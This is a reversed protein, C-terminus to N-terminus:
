ARVLIWVTLPEGGWGVEHFSRVMYDRGAITVRGSRPLRASRVASPTGRSARLHGRAGRAVVDAGTLDHVVKVYGTVDQISVLLIGLVRGRSRLVRRGPAVVFVGDSNVTANVLVRSGRVVSIRTVHDFHNSPGMLQADAEGQAGAVNGSSLADLLVRDRAIRGLQQVLKRGGAESAYSAQAIHVIEGIRSRRPRVAATSAPAASSPLSSGHLQSTTASSTAPQASTRASPTSGCAVLAIAFAAAAVLV